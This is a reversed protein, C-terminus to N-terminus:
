GSGRWSSPNGGAAIGAGTGRWALSDDALATDGGGAVSLVDVMRRLSSCSATRLCEDVGAVGKKEETRLREPPVLVVELHRLRELPVLVM